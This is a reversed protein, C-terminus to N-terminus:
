SKLKINRIFNYFKRYNCKDFMFLNNEECYNKFEIFCKEISDNLILEKNYIADQKDIEKDSLKNDVSEFNYNMKTGNLVVFKNEDYNSERLEPDEDSFYDDTKQM